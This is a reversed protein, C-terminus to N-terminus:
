EAGLAVIKDVIQASDWERVGTERYIIRGAKDLIFTVPIGTVRWQNAVQGDGDLPIPFTVATKELFRKISAAEDNMAIALFVVDHSKLQQWANELAPMEKRCPICWTAWFNIVVVRGKYSSLMHSNGNVDPM